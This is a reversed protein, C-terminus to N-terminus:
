KKSKFLKFAAAGLGLSVIISVVALWRNKTALGAGAVALITGLTFLKISAGEEEKLLSILKIGRICASFDYYSFAALIIALGFIWVFNTMAEWWPFPVTKIM